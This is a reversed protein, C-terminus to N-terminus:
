DVRMSEAYKTNKRIEKDFIGNDLIEDGVNFDLWVTPEQADMFRENDEFGFRVEDGRTWGVHFSEKTPQYGLSRYVEALLLAGRIDVITQAYAQQAALFSHNTLPDLNFNMNGEDFCRAFENHPRGTPKYVIKTEGKKNTKEVPELDQRMTRDADEGYVMKVNERYHNFAKSVATYAASVAAMRKMMINHGAFICFISAAELSIPIAYLKVFRFVTHTWIIARDKKEDEESYSEAMEPDNKVEEIKSMEENHQDLIDGAKTTAMAATVVAGVGAAVGAVVLITPSKAKLVHKAVILSDKINM